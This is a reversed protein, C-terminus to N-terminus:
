FQNVQLRQINTSKHNMGFSIGSSIEVFYSQFYRKGEKENDKSNLM